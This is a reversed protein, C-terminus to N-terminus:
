GSRKRASTGPHGGGPDDAPEISWRVGTVAQLQREASRLLVEELTFRARVDATLDEYRLSRGERLEICLEGGRFRALVQEVRACM